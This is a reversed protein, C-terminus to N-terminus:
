FPIDDDGPPPPTDYLVRSSIADDSQLSNWEFTSGPRDVEVRFRHAPSYGPAPAHDSIGLYRIAVIEGQVPRLEKFRNLLATQSLWVAYRRQAEEPGEVERLTCVVRPGNATDVRAYSEVVGVLEPLEKFDWADAYDEHIRDRLKRAREAVDDYPQATM